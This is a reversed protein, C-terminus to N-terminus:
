IKLIKPRINKFKQLSPAKRHEKCTRLNKTIQLRINKYVQDKYFYLCCKKKKKM